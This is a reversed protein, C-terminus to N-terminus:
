RRLEREAGSNIWERLAAGCHTNYHVCAAYGDGVGSKRCHEDPLRGGRLEAYVLGPCRHRTLDLADVVRRFHTISPPKRMLGIVTDPLTERLRDLYEGGSILLTRPPTKGL